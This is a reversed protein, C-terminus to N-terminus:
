SIIVLLSLCLYPLSLSGLRYYGLSLQQLHCLCISLFITNKHPWANVVLRQKVNGLCPPLPSSGLHKCDAEWKSIFLLFLLTFLWGKGGSSVKLYCSVVLMHFVERNSYFILLDCTGNEPCSLCQVHASLSRPTLCPAGMGTICRRGWLDRPQCADQFLTAWAHQPCDWPLDPTLLFCSLQGNLCLGM